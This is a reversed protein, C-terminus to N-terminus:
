RAQCFGLGGLSKKLRQPGGITCPPQFHVLPDSSLGSASKWAAPSQKIVPSVKSHWSLSFIMMIKPCLFIKKLHTVFLMLRKPFYLCITGYLIFLMQEKFRLNLFHFPLNYTLLLYKSCMCGDFSKCRLNRCVLLAFVSLGASVCALSKYLCKAFSSIRM